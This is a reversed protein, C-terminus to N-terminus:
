GNSYPFVYPKLGNGVYSAFQSNAHDIVALDAVVLNFETTECLQKLTYGRIPHGHTVYQDIHSMGVHGGYPLGLLEVWPCNTGVMKINILGFQKTHDTDDLLPMKTIEDPTLVRGSSIFSGVAMKIEVTWKELPELQTDYFTTSHV